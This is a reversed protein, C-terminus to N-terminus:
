APPLIVCRSKVVDLPMAAGVAWFTSFLSGVFMTPISTTSTFIRPNWEVLAEKAGSYTSLLAANLVAARASSNVVGRGLGALGEEKVIRAVAHLSTRYNRRQNPPLKSDNCMRVIAVEAPNGIISGVTGAISGLLLKTGFSVDESEGAAVQRRKATDYLYSFLGIRICSYSFQRLYAASLGDWLAVVGGRRVIQKAADFPGSYAPSSGVAGSDTQLQVRIVDLPHCFTSAVCGSTASLLLRTYLPVQETAAM